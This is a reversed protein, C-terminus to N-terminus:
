ETQLYVVANLTPPNFHVIFCKRETLFYSVNPLEPLERIEEFGLVLHNKVMHPHTCVDVAIKRGKDCDLGVVKNLYTDILKPSLTSTLARVFNCLLPITYEYSRALTSLVMKQLPPPDFRIFPMLHIIHQTQQLINPRRLLLHQVIYAGFSHSIFIFRPLESSQSSSKFEAKWEDIVGDVWSLKHRVAMHGCFSTLECFEVDAFLM